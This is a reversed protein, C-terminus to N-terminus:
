GVFPLSNGTTTCYEWWSISGNIIASLISTNQLQTYPTLYSEFLSSANYRPALSSITLSGVLNSDNQYGSSDYIISTNYLNYIGDNPNPTWSTASNGLELKPHRM